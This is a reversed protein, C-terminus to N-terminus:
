PGFNWVAGRWDPELHQVTACWPMEDDGYRVLPLDYPMRWGVMVKDQREDVMEGNVVHGSPQPLDSGFTPVMEVKGKTGAGEKGGGSQGVSGADHEEWLGPWFLVGLEYSAIRVEGAASEASGWAQTSLNASTMLAWDIRTLSSDAFRVYTKIHPAARSRHAERIQAKGSPIYTHNGSKSGSSSQHLTKDGAWHHLLPRIVNLQKQQAPTSTKMHISAGSQYGRLSRRIEVPTPFIISFDPKIRPRASSISPTSSNSLAPLFTSFLWKEGVSAVSSVQIVVHPDPDSTKPETLDNATSPLTKLINRLAPWGWLTGTEPDIARLNQKGPAHAILSARVGSFDYNVLQISLGKLKTGYSRFYALLDSKFRNASGITVLGRNPSVSISQLPLLPSKWVAQSMVWDQALFNATMIIVQALDDHRFLVMMKTHHTGFPDSLYAKIDSVNPYRKAAEEIHERNSDEKKWSGHVLRIKITDRVDADFQKRVLKLWNSSPWIVM